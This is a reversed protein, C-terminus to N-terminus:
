ASGPTNAPMLGARQLAETQRLRLERAVKWQADPITRVVTRYVPGGATVTEVGLLEPPGLLDDRLEPDQALQTAAQRLVEAAAPVPVFGLPLDVVVTAAGQSHNGLRRIEGNPIYWFTGNDDRVTTVRLGIATVTGTVDNMEVVDGVGYQDEMLMFLGALLDKILSQAGFGIAIGVVGAGALLPGLHIGLEGLIILAAISFVTVTVTARLLSGITAARQRRRQPAVEAMERLRQRVGREPLERRSSRPQGEAVRTMMRDVARRLLGRALFAVALILLIRLPVLALVVAEALWARDTLEWVWRCLQETQLCDPTREPADM